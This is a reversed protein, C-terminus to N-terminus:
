IFLSVHIVVNDIPTNVLVLNGRKCPQLVYQSDKLSWQWYGSLLLLLYRDVNQLLSYGHWQLFYFMFSWGYTLDILCMFVAWDMINKLFVVSLSAEQLQDLMIQRKQGFQAWSCRPNGCPYNLLWWKDIEVYWFYFEVDSSVCSDRCNNM